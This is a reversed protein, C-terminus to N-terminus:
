EAIVVSVVCEAPEQKWCADAKIAIVIHDFDEAMDKMVCIEEAANNVRCSLPAVEAWTQFLKATRAHNFLKAINDCEGFKVIRPVAKETTKFVFSTHAQEQSTLSAIELELQPTSPHRDTMPSSNHTFTTTGTVATSGSPVINSATRSALLISDASTVSSNSHITPREIHSPRKTQTRRTLSSGPLMLVLAAIMAESSLWGLDDEDTESELEYSHRQRKLSSRIKEEAEKGAQRQSVGLTSNGYTLPLLPKLSSMNTPTTTGPRSAEKGFIKAVSPPTEWGHSGKWVSYLKRTSNEGDTGAMYNIIAPEYGGRVVTLM